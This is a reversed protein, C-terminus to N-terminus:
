WSYQPTQPAGLASNSEGRGGMCCCEGPLLQATCWFVCLDPDSITTLEQCHANASIRHIRTESSSPFKRRQGLYTGALCHSFCHTSHWLSIESEEWMVQKGLALAAQLHLHENERGPTSWLEPSM